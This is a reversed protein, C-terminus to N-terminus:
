PTTHQRRMERAGPTTNGRREQQRKRFAEREAPTM